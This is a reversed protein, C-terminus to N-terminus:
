LQHEPLINRNQFVPYYTINFSLKPGSAEAKEREFLNERSHEQARLIQNRIMKGKHRREM